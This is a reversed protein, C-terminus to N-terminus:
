GEKATLLGLALYRSWKDTTFDEAYLNNNALATEIADAVDADIEEYEEIDEATIDDLDSLNLAKLEYDERLERDDTMYNARPTDPSGFKM